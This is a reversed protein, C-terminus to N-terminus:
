LLQRQLVLLSKKGLSWVLFCAFTKRGNEFREKSVGVEKYVQKPNKNEFVKVLENLFRHVSCPNPKGCSVDYNQLLYNKIKNAIFLNSKM